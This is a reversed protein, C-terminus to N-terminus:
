RNLGMKRLLVQFRPEARLSDLQPDPLIWGNISQEAFAKEYWQLAKERRGLGEYAVAIYDPPFYGTRSRELMQDLIQQGEAQAGAVGLGHALYMLELAGHGWEAAAKKLDSVAERPRGTQLRLAAQVYGYFGGYKRSELEAEYYEHALYLKWVVNARFVPSLPEVERARRAEAVAERARGIEALLTAYVHHAQGYNPALTIAQKCLREAGAWDWEYNMKVEALTVLPGVLSSDLDLARQAAARASPRADQSSVVGWSALYDYTDALGAWAPAYGPDAAVAQELYQRSKKLNEGGGREWWYRGRLYAEYAAPDVDRRTALLPRERGTLKIQVAHAVAEAVQDQLALIGNLRAEYKQAWLHTEPEARILQATIRVQDQDRVVTGELVADVNLERAIQSVSRKAGKYQMVSTRSIVRLASIKALDTILADTMGDAFYDQDPDHSLNELPLVAVSRISRAAPNSVIGMKVALMISIPVAVAASVLWWWGPRVTPSPVQDHAVQQGSGTPVAESAEDTPKVPAVFRYGRKPVTQIYQPGGNSEELAKRLLSINQTLSGEEVITDPWVRQLLEEKGVLRGEREMLAVLLDLAKPALPILEDGRLLVRQGLDLRYGDFEYFTKEQPM